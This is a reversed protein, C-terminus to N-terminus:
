DRYDSQPNCRGDIHEAFTKLLRRLAKIAVLQNRRSEMIYRAYEAPPILEPHNAHLVREWQELAREAALLDTAASTKSGFM